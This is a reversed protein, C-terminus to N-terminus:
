GPHPAEPTVVTVDAPLGPRLGLLDQRNSGRGHLLVVVTDGDKASGPKAIAYELPKVTTM